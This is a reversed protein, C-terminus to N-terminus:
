TTPIFQRSDTPNQFVNLNAVTFTVFAHFLLFSESLEQFTKRDSTFFASGNSASSTRSATKNPKTQFDFSL